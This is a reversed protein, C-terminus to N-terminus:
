RFITIIKKNNTLLNDCEGAKGTFSPGTKFYIVINVYQNIVLEMVLIVVPLILVSIQVANISIEAAREACDEPM